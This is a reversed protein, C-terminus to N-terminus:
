DATKKIHKEVKEKLESDKFPKVIFDNAGLSVAEKVHTITGESTLMIIPTDDYGPLERIMPILEFGNYVPMLYDLLILDPKKLKLFDIVVEPRSITHVKYGPHLASKITRLVSAVDDIALIRPRGDDANNHSDKDERAASVHKEICEVLSKTEFPKIIYDVAGLSLGKIVSEKDNNSTFFIVPIDMYREDSKLYEIVKYGDAGPMNIDLIIIDPIIKELAELMLNVTQAPFVEHYPMLRKKLAILSSSVDDIYMVKFRGSGDNNM